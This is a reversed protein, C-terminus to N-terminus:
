NEMRIFFSNDKGLMEVLDKAFQLAGDFDAYDEDKRKAYKNPAVLEPLTSFVFDPRIEDIVSFLQEPDDNCMVNNSYYFLDEKTTYCENSETFIFAIDVGFEKLMNAYGLARRTGSVICAKKGRLQEIYSSVKSLYEDRIMELEKIDKCFFEYIEKYTEFCSNIGYFGYKDGIYPIDYKKKMLEALNRSANQCTIINLCASPSTKLEDLSSVGPINKYNNIGISSLLKMICQTSRNFYDFDGLINVRDTKQKASDDIFIENLLVEGAMKMGYKHDGKFGASHIAIFRTDSLDNFENVVDDINDGIIESVCCNFVVFLEPTYKNLLEEIANKLKDTGGFIVDTEELDTCFIKPMRIREKASYYGNLRIISNRAYFSCGSPGHVLCITNQLNAFYRLSGFLSCSKYPECYNM